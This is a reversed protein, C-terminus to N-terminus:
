NGAINDELEFNTPPEYVRSVNAYLDITAAAAVILGVSPNITSYADDPHLLAGTAVSTNRVERAATVGQLALVATWRPLFRWRDTAFIELTSADNDVLTSRGNRVGRLNRFNAGEVKNEGYNLGLLVDHSGLRHNYRVMTGIDEHDTDILLSFVEVAPAPGPGDFDVLIRDVIPHFLEQEEWSFGLELERDRDIHWTTRNAARLTKVELRYDGGIAKPSAQRPDRKFEARTLAGSLEQENDVYTFFFRTELDQRPLWGANAYLGARDQENHGRYGEWQKAEVTVLADFSPDFVRSATLQGQLHGYAGGDLDLRVGPSNRATASIFDIAGGLTSAGYKMANAGRAVTAYEATLPDIIRNHNNGDATTVPLGDQLLKIGNMDFNTADLNSGRSSFFMSDNGSNSAAYVGPAFRLLDALSGIQRTRETDIDLVSVGGPTLRQEARAAAIPFAEGSVYITEM